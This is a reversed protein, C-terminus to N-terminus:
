RGGVLHKLQQVAATLGMVEAGRRPLPEIQEGHRCRQWFSEASGPAAAEAVEEVRHGASRGHGARFGPQADLPGSRYRRSERTGCAGCLNSSSRRRRRAGSAPRGPGSGPRGPRGGARCCRTGPRSMSAARDWLVSSHHFSNAASMSATLQTKARLFCAAMSAPWDHGGTRWGAACGSASRAGCGPFEMGFPRLNNLRLSIVVALVRCSQILKMYPRVLRGSPGNASGGHGVTRVGDVDRLFWCIGIADGLTSGRLAVTPEKMRHLVEAPLIRSVAKRAATM